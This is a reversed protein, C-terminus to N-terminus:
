DRKHSHIRKMTGNDVTDTQTKSFDINCSFKLEECVCVYKYLNYSSDICACCVTVLKSIGPPKGNM